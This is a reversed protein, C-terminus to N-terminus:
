WACPRSPRRLVPHRDADVLLPPGIDIGKSAAAKSPSRRRCSSCRPHHARWDEVVHFFRSSPQTGSPATTPPPPETILKEGKKEDLLAWETEHLAWHAGGPRRVAPWNHQDWGFDSGQVLEWVPLRPVPDPLRPDLILTEDDKGPRRFLWRGDNDIGLIQSFAQEDKRLIPVFANGVWRRPGAADGTVIWESGVSVVECGDPKLEEVMYEDLLAAASGPRLSLWAPVRRLTQGSELPISVGGEVYFVVGGDAQRTVTQVKGALLSMGGLTPQVQTRMLSRLRARAEPPQDKALREFLPYAGPGYRSLEKFATERRENEPASLQEVLAAVAAENVDAADLAAVALKVGGGQGQIMQLVSGDLLPVLHVIQEPWGQQPGLDVWKDNVYRAAGTSGRRGDDAPIWALLGQWDLLAEPRAHPADARADATDILARYDETVTPEFRFISVGQDSPM